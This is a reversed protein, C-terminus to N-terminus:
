FQVNNELEKQAIKSRLNVEECGSRDELYQVKRIDEGLRPNRLVFRENVKREMGQM